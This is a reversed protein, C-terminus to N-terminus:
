HATPTSDNLYIGAVMGPVFDSQMGMGEPLRVLAHALVDDMTKAYFVEMSDKVNDPVEKMDKRNEEPIIAVKL